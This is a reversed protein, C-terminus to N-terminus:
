SKKGKRKKTIKYIEYVLAIGFLITIAGGFGIGSAFSFFLLGGAILTLLLYWAIKKIIKNM